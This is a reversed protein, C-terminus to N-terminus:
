MDSRGIGYNKQNMTNNKKCATANHDKREKTRLQHSDLRMSGCRCTINPCVVACAPLSNSGIAKMCLLVLGLSSFCFPHRLQVFWKNNNQNVTRRGNARKISGYSATILWSCASRKYKGTETSVEKPTKQWQIHDGVTLLIKGKRCQHLRNEECRSELQM